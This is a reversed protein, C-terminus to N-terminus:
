EFTWLNKSRIEILLNYDFLHKLTIYKFRNLLAKEVVCQSYLSPATFTASLPADFSLTLLLNRLILIFPSRQFSKLEVGVSDLM